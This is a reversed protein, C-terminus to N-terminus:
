FISLFRYPNANAAYNFLFPFIHGRLRQQLLGSILRYQLEQFVIYQYLVESFVRDRDAPCGSMRM